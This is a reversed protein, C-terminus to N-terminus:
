KESLYLQKQDLDYTWKLDSNKWGNKMRKGKYCNDEEAVKDVLKGIQDFWKQLTEEDWEPNFQPYLALVKDYFSAKWSLRTGIFREPTHSDGSEASNATGNSPMTKRVRIGPKRPRDGTTRGSIIRKSLTIGAETALAIFFSEAKRLTDGTFGTQRFKESFQQPTAVTLDFDDTKDFLFFYSPVVLNALLQKRSEDDAEVLERFGPYVKDDADILNLYRLALKLQSQVQGSLNTMVSSDLRPPVGDTRMLDIFNRFTVYSVYPPKLTADM